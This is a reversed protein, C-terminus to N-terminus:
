WCLQVHATRSLIKEVFLLACYRADRSYKEENYYLQAIIKEKIRERQEIREQETPSVENTGVTGALARELTFLERGLRSWQRQLSFESQQGTPQESNQALM